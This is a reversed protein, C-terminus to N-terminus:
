ATVTPLGGLTAVAWLHGTHKTATEDKSPPEQLLHLASPFHDLLFVSWCPGAALTARLRTDLCLLSRPLLDELPASADKTGTTERRATGRSCNGAACVPLTGQKEKEQAIFRNWSWQLPIATSGLAFNARKTKGNLLM